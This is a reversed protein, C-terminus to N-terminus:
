LCCSVEVYITTYDGLSVDCVELPAVDCLVEDKFPKIDYQLRRQQNVHIDWGQSLWGIIYPHPNPMMTLNLRKIVGISILNKQRDNDVIFHLPTGKVWMQSHPQFKTTAITFSPEADIIWKGKEPESNSDSDVDLGLTKTKAL